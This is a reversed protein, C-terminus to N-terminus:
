RLRPDAIEIGELQCAFGAGDGLELPEAALGLLLDQCTQREDLLDPLADSDVLRRGHGDAM